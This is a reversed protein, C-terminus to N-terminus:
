DLATLNIQCLAMLLFFAISRHLQAINFTCVVFGKRKGTQSSLGRRFHTAHMANSVSSDNTAQIERIAIVDLDHINTLQRNISTGERAFRVIISIKNQSPYQSIVM